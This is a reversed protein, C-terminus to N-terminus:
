LRSIISEHYKIDESFSVEKNMKLVDKKSPKTSYNKSRKQPIKRRRYHRENITNELHLSSESIQIEPVVTRDNIWQESVPDEIKNKYDIFKDQLELDLITDLPVGNLLVDCWKKGEYLNENKEGLDCSYIIQEYGNPSGTTFNM